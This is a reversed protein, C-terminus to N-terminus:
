AKVNAFDDAASKDYTPFPLSRFDSYAAKIFNLIFLQNSASNFGGTASVHLLIADRSGNSLAMFERECIHVKALFYIMNDRFYIM